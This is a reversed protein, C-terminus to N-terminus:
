NMSSQTLIYIKDPILTQTIYNANIATKTSVWNAHQHSLQQSHDCSLLPLPSILYVWALPLGQASVLRM